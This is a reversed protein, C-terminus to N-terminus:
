CRPDSRRPRRGTASSRCGASRARSRRARRRDRARAAGGRGRRRLRGRPAGDVALRVHALLAVGLADDGRRADIDSRPRRAASSRASRGCSRGRAGRADRLAAADPRGGAQGRELDRLARDGDASARGGGPRRRVGEDDAVPRAADASARLEALIQEDSYRSRIGARFAALAAPDISAIAGTPRKRAMCSPLDPHVFRLYSALGNGHTRHARRDRGRRRAAATRALRASERSAPRPRRCSAGRFAGRSPRGPRSRRAESRPQRLPRHEDRRRVALRRRRRHRRLDQPRPQPEGVVVGPRVEDGPDGGREERRAAGLEPQELDVLARQGLDGRRTRGCASQEAVEEAVLEVAVALELEDGLAPPGRDRGEGVRLEDDVAVVRLDAVSARARRVRTKPRSSGRARGAPAGAHRRSSTSGASRCATRRRRRTRRGGRRSGSGASRGRM